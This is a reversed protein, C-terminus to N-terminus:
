FYWAKYITKSFLGSIIDDYNEQLSGKLVIGYHMILDSVYIENNKFVISAAHGELKLLVARYQKDLRQFPQLVERIFDNNLLRGSEDEERGFNLTLRTQISFKKLAEKSTTFRGSGSHFLNLSKEFLGRSNMYEQLYSRIPVQFGFHAINAGSIVTCGGNNDYYDRHFKKNNLIETKFNIYFYSNIYKSRNIKNM